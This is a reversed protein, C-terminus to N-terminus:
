DLLVRGTTFEIPLGKLRTGSFDAVGYWPTSGVGCSGLVNDDSEVSESRANSWRMYLHSSSTCFSTVFDFSSPPSLELRPESKAGSICSLGISVLKLNGARSNYLPLESGILCTAAKQAVSLPPPPPLSYGGLYLVYCSFMKDSRPLSPTEMPVSSDEPKESFPDNDVELNLYQAQFRALAVRYGYEYSIQGMWQLGLEFRVSRKYDAVSKSPLEAKLTDNEWLENLEKDAQESRRTLKDLESKLKANDAQLEDVQQLAVVLQEPDAETKLKDIEAELFSAQNGIITVLRGADHVRNLLAM